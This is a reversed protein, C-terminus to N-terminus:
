YVGDDIIDDSDVGMEGEEVQEEDKQVDAEEEMRMAIRENERELTKDKEDTTLAEAIRKRCAESHARSNGLGAKKFRCGECNETFGHKELMPITIRFRRLNVEKRGTNEEVQELRVPEDFTIRIPVTDGPKNPNPQQPTGKLRKILDGDWREDEPMRRAAYARIVGKTTGIIIENSNSNHGLWIGEHWETEMKSEQSKNKRIGKYWVKEGQPVCHLKCKRGRRREYGTKGDKGVLFRSPLM